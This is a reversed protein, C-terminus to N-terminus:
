KSTPPLNSSPRWFIIAAVLIVAVTFSNVGIWTSRDLHVRSIPNYLVALVGFVWVWPVRNNEYATFASYAFVPCCIWRLLTYFDYPHRGAVALGLMVVAVLWAFYLGVTRKMTKNFDLTSASSIEGASLGSLSCFDVNVGLGVLRCRHRGLFLHPKRVGDCIAFITAGSTGSGWGWSWFQRPRKLIIRKLRIHQRIRHFAGTGAQLSLFKVRQPSAPLPAM